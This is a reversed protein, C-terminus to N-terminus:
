AIPDTFALSILLQLLLNFRIPPLADRWFMPLAAPAILGRSQCCHFPGLLLVWAVCEGLSREPRVIPFFIAPRILCMWIIPIGQIIKVHEVVWNRTLLRVNGCVVPISVVEFLTLFVDRQRGERWKYVHAIWLVDIWPGAVQAAAVIPTVAAESFLTPRALVALMPLIYAQILARLWDAWSRHWASTGLAFQYSVMVAFDAAHRVSWPILAQPKQVGM